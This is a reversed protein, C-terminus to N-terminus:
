LLNELYHHNRNKNQTRDYLIKLKKLFLANKALSEIYTLALKLEGENNNVVSNHESWQDSMQSMSMSVSNNFFSNNLGLKDM